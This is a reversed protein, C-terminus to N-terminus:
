DVDADLAELQSKMMKELRVQYTIGHGKALPPAVAQYFRFIVWAAELMAEYELPCCTVPLPSLLEIPLIQDVKFYPEEGEGL